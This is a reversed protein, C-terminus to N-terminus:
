CHAWKERDYKQQQHLHDQQGEHVKGTEVGPPSLNEQGWGQLSLCNKEIRGSDDTWAEM